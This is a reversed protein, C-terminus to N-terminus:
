IFQIIIAEILGIILGLIGGSLEIFKLEKKSVKLIIKELEKDPLNEIKTQLEKKFYNEVKKGILPIEIIKLFKEPMLDLSVHSIKEAIQKKRKPILGQIFFFKKRPHFLLKIAIFNTLWGIIFGLLPFIVFEIM